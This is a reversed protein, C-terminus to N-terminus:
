QSPLSLTHHSLPVSSCSSVRESHVVGLRRVLLTATHNVPAGASPTFVATLNQLGLSGFISSYYADLRVCVAFDMLDTINGDTAVTAITDGKFVTVMNAAEVPGHFATVSLNRDDAITMAIEADTDSDFNFTLNGGVASGQVVRACVRMVNTATTYANWDM